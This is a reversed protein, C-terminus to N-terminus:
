PSGLNVLAFTAGLSGKHSVIDKNDFVLGLNGTKHLFAERLFAIM